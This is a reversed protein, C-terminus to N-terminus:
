MAAQIGLYFNNLSKPMQAVYGAIPAPADPDGIAALEDEKTWLGRLSLYLPDNVNYTLPVLPHVQRSAYTYREFSSTALLVAGAFMTAFRYHPQNRTSAVFDDGEEDSGWVLFGGFQGRSFSVIFEDKASGVWQVGQGGPWGAAVMAEDVAVTFSDDKEFVICDRSRFIEAM